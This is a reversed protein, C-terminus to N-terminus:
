CNVEISGGQANISNRKKYNQSRDESNILSSFMKYEIDYDNQKLIIQAGLKKEMNIIIPAKLNMTVDEKRESMTVLSFIRASETKEIAINELEEVSAIVKYDHKFTEPSVIIFAIDAKEISQLLSFPKLEENEVLIYKTFKTFGPLGEKFLIVEENTYSINGFNKSEVIM